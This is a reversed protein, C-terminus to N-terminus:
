PRQGYSNSPKRSGVVSQHCSSCVGRPSKVCCSDVESTVIQSSGGFLEAIRKQNLWFTESEYLVEIRVTGAQTQYLILEGKTPNKPNARLTRGCVTDPRVEGSAHMRM